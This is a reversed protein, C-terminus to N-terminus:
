PLVRIVRNQRFVHGEFVLRGGRRYLTGCGNGWLVGDERRLVGMAESAHEPSLTWQDCLLMVSPRHLAFCSGDERREHWDYSWMASRAQQAACSWDGANVEHTWKVEIGIVGSPAVHWGSGQERQFPPRMVGDARRMAWLDVRRRQVLGPGVVFPLVCHVERRVLYGGTRLEEELLDVIQAENVTGAYDGIM